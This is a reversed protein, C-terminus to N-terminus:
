SAASASLTQVRMVRQPMRSFRSSAVEGSGITSASPRITNAPARAACLFDNVQRFPEVARCCRRTRHADAEGVAADGAAQRLFSALVRDGLIPGVPRPEIMQRQAVPM